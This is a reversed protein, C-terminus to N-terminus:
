LLMALISLRSFRRPLGFCYVKESGNPPFQYGGKSNGSCIGATKSGCCLRSKRRGIHESGLFLLISADLLRPYSPMGLILLLVFLLIGAAVAALGIYQVVKWRKGAAELKAVVPDSSGNTGPSDNQM